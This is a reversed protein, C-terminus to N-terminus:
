QVAFEKRTADTTAWMNEPTLVQNSKIMRVSGDALAYNSGGSTTNPGTGGHRSRDLQFLDNGVAGGREIELLDMYYHASASIKEGIMVTLSPQRLLAAKMSFDSTGAMYLAMQAPSLSDRMFDNWGNYIYSRPKGDAPFAESGPGGGSQPDNADNPCLLVKLNKYGDYIRSPWRNLVTRPALFDQNDDAYMTMALSLQRVNNLCATRTAKGKAKSLSPLLMAALIAIIAIVVLLEILTFGVMFRPANAKTHTLNATKM